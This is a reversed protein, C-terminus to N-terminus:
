PTRVFVNLVISQLFSILLLVIMASMDFMGLPPILRQVPRMIPDTVKIVFALFTKRTFVFWSALFRLFIFLILLSLLGYIVFGIFVKPKGTMVGATLGDIV